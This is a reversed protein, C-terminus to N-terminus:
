GHYEVGNGEQEKWAKKQKIRWVKNSIRANQKRGEIKTELKAKHFARLLLSAEYSKGDRKLERILDQTVEVPLMALQDDFSLTNEKVPLAARLEFVLDSVLQTASFVSSGDENYSNGHKAEHEIFELLSEPSLWKLNLYSMRDLDPRVLKADQLLEQYKRFELKKRM